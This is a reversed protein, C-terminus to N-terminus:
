AWPVKLTAQGRWAGPMLRTVYEGQYQCLALIGLELFHLALQLVEVRCPAPVKALFRRKTPTPHVVANRLRNILEPGDTLNASTALTHAHAFSVPVDGPIGLDALMLRIRKDAPFKEFDKPSYAPKKVVLRMWSLLDLGSHALVLAGEAAGANLNAEVYWNVL